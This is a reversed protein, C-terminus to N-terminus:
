KVETLKTRATRAQATNPFDKIVQQLITRAKVKDGMNAYSLGMKLLAHSFKNGDPYNKILKEYEAIAKDFKNEFYFTEAIWFQANDSYESDPFQKLFNSFDQRAREYKGEKFIAYAATYALDRDAKVIKPPTERAAVVPPKGKDPPEASEAKKGVGIFNEIFNIKFSVTELRERFDKAEEERRTGRTIQTNIDKRLVEISGRVQQLHDRIETITAGSEAQGRRLSDNIADSKELQQRLDAVEEKLKRTMTEMAAIKDSM